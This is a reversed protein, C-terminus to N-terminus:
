SIYSDLASKITPITVRLNGAYLPHIPEGSVYEAPYLAPDGWAAYCDIVHANSHSSAITPLQAAYNAANAFTTAATPMRCIAVLFIEVDANAATVANIIAHMNAASQALSINQSTNVDPTTDILVIDPKTVAMKNLWNTIWYGSSTGEKGYTAVKVTSQKGVQLEKALQIHLANANRDMTLSAGLIAISVTM